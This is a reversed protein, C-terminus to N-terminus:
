RSFSKNENQDANKWEKLFQNKEEISLNNLVDNIRKFTEKYKEEIKESHERLQMNEYQEKKLEEEIEKIKNQLQRLKEASVTNKFNEIKEDLAQTAKELYNKENASVHREEWKETTLTVYKKGNIIGKRHIEVYDPYMESINSKKDVARIYALKAEYEAQLPILSDKIAQVQEQAETLMETAKIAIKDLCESASERKLEDISKNGDRTAENLINVRHGIKNEICDSLDIHFTKLDTRNVVEKASVKYGGKKKDTTVPVFAFHMHPTVEDMHVYASVINERGYREAMFEYSDKFFQEQEKEPLDKPVTLVWSCMINVDKRNQLKVESCRKRIFDGQELPQDTEALNYNLYTRSIDISENSINDSKRDYHAFMHGCSAKTHKMLHAM